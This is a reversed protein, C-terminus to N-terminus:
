YSAIGNTLVVKIEGGITTDILATGELSALVEDDPGGMPVEFSDYLVKPIQIELKDNTTGTFVNGDFVITFSDTAGDVFSQYEAKNKFLMELSITVERMGEEISAVNRSPRLTYQDDKLNNAIEIELSKINENVNGGKTVTVKHFVFPDRDSYSPISASAKDVLSQAIWDVSATLSGDGGAEVSLTLSDAKAGSITKTMVGENREFTYSPLSNGPIFTHTYAGTVGNVEETSVSGLAALLLHGISNPEADMELSVENKIGMGIGKAKGRSARITEPYYNQPDQTAEFSKVPIFTDVTEATGFTTEKKLGVYGTGLAM